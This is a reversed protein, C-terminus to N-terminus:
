LEAKTDRKWLSFFDIERFNQWKGNHLRLYM